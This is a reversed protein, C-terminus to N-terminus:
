CEHSRMRAFIACQTQTNIALTIESQHLAPSLFRDQRQARRVVTSQQQEDGEALASQGPLEVDVGFIPERGPTVKRLWVANGRFMATVITADEVVATRWTRGHRFLLDGRALCLWIERGRFRTRVTVM